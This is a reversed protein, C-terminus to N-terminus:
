YPKRLEQFVLGSIADTALNDERMSVHGEEGAFSLEGQRVRRLFSRNMTALVPQDDRSVRSIDASLSMDCLVRALFFCYSHLYRRRIPLHWRM